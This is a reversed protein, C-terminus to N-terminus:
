SKLIVHPWIKLCVYICAFVCDYTSSMLHKKCMIKSLIIVLRFCLKNHGNKLKLFQTEFYNFLMDQTVCRVIRLGLDTHNWVMRSM